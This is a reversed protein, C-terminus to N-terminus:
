EPSEGMLCHEHRAYWFLPIVRALSGGEKWAPGTKELTTDGIIFFHAHYKEETNEKRVIAMFRFSMPFLYLLVIILSASVGLQKEMKLRSLTRSLHFRRFLTIIVSHIRNKQLFVNYKEHINYINAAM